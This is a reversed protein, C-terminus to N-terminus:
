ARTFFREDRGGQIINYTYAKIMLGVCIGYEPRDLYMKTQVQYMQIIRVGNLPLFILTYYLYTKIHLYMEYYTKYM